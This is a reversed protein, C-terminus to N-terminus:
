PLQDMSWGLSGGIRARIRTAHTLTVREDYNNVMLIINCFQYKPTNENELHPFQFSIVSETGLLVVM